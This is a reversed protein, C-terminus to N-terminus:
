IGEERIEKEIRKRFELEAKTFERPKEEKETAKKILSPVVIFM